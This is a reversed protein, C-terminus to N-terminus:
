DKKKVEHKRFVFAIGGPLSCIIAVIYALGEFIAADEGAVAEVKFLVSASWERVGIGGFSIPLSIMFTIIPIFIFFYGVSISVDVSRALSYHAFIRASQLLLGILVLSGLFLKHDRFYHLSNYIDRLLAHARNPTIFMGLPEFRKAFPKNFLFLLSFSLIGFITLIGYFIIRTDSSDREYLMYLSGLLALSALIITGVFRDFLVTSIAASKNGSTKRIDYYRVVDGGIFSLLFNNFFLGTFYFAAARRLPLHIDLQKLIMNWQFTGILNSLMMCGLAIIVWYGKLNVLSDYFASLEYKYMLYYLLIFSVALKFVLKYSKKM